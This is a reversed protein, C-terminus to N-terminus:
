DVLNLTITALATSDPGFSGKQTFYNWNAFGYITIILDAADGSYGSLDLTIVFSTVGNYPSKYTTGVKWKTLTQDNLINAYYMNTGKEISNTMGSLVVNEYNTGTLKCVGLANLDINNIPDHSSEYGDNDVTEYVTITLQVTNGLVTKNINGNNAYSNGASDVVSLSYTGIDFMYLTHPGNYTLSQAMEKSMKPVTFQFWKLAGSYSVKVYLLTGSKYAGSTTALGNSDTTLSEMQVLNKDYVYVSASAAAGGAYKDVVSFKVPYNVTVDGVINKNPQVIQTSQKQIVGSQQLFPMIYQNSLALLIPISLIIIASVVLIDKMPIKATGRRKMKNM